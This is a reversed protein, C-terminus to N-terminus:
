MLLGILYSFVNFIGFGLIISTMISRHKVFKKNFFIILTPIIFLTLGTAPVTFLGLIGLINFNFTTFIWLLFMVILAALKRRRQVKLRSPYLRAAVIEVAALMLGYFSSSLAFFIVIYSLFKIANLVVSASLENFGIVALSSLNNKLAYDVSEPTLTLASSLVFIGTFLSLLYIASKNLRIAKKEIEDNPIDYNERYYMIMPSLAPYFNVAGMYLPFSMLFNKLINHSSGGFNKFEVLHWFPIFLVMMIVILIILVISLKDLAKVVAKESCMLIITLGVIIILPFLKYGSLNVPTINYKYLFEGINANLGTTYVLVSAFLQVAFFYSIFISFGKGCYEQIVDNYSTANEANAIMIAYYKQAFYTVCFALSMTLFGIYIGSKGAQLPIFLIGSGIATGFFSFVWARDIKKTNVNM